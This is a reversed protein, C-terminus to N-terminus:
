DKSVVSHLPSSRGCHPCIGGVLASLSLRGCSSCSAAIEIEELLAHIEKEPNDTM